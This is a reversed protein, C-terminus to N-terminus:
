SPRRTKGDWGLLTDYAVFAGMLKRTQPELEEVAPIDVKRPRNDHTMDPLKIGVLESVMEPMRSLNPLPLVVDFKSVDCGLWCAQHKVHHGVLGSRNMAVCIHRAFSGVDPCIGSEDRGVVWKRYCGLLRDVGDRHIAVKVARKEEAYIPVLLKDWCKDGHLNHGKYPQRFHIEHLWRLISSSGCKNPVAVM